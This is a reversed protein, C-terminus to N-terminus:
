AVKVIIPIGHLKSRVTGRSREEDLCRARALVKDRPAVSIVAKLELGQKNHQEIQNLFIEMLEVTTLSGTSLQHQLEFASSCLISM